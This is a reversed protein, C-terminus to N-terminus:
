QNLLVWAVVVFAAVCFSILFLKNFLRESMKFIVVPDTPDPRQADDVDNTMVPAIEVREGTAADVIARGCQLSSCAYGGDKEVLPFGCLPCYADRPSELDGMVSTGADNLAKDKIEPM